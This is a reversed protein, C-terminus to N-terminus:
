CSAPRAMGRSGMCAARWVYRSAQLRWAEVAVRLVRVRQWEAAHRQAQRHRVAAAAESAWGRVARRLLHLAAVPEARRSLEKRAMLQSRLAAIVHSMVRAQRWADAVDM